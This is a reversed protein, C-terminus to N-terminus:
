WSLDDEYGLHVLVEGERVKFLHKARPTFHKQWTGSQGKRVFKQTEDSDRANQDQYRRGKEEEVRRMNRFSSADVADRIIEDSVSTKGVFDLMRRLEYSADTQLDEYRVVLIDSSTEAAEMWGRVHTSWLTPWHDDRALFEEFSTGDPLESKRYHYYSTYVDRGDRVLYIVSPYAPECPAHSKMLRPGSLELRMDEEGAEPILEHITHFDVDTNPYLANALLFRVWTNGSKPYSVIFTDDPYVTDPVWTSRRRESFLHYVRRIANKIM